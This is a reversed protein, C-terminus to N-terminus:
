EAIYPKYIIPMVEGNVIRGSDSFDPVYRGGLLKAAVLVYDGSDHGIGPRNGKLLAKEGYDTELTFPVDAPIRIGAYVTDMEITAAEQPEETIEELRIAYKKLAGEGIPWMEGAAGTVIYNGDNVPEYSDELINYVVGKKGPVNYERNVNAKQIRATYSKNTFLEWKETCETIYQINESINM